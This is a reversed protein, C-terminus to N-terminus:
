SKTSKRRWIGLGALGAGLLLLSAPEPVSTELARINLTGTYSAGAVTVGGDTNGTVIIQLPGTYSAPLIFGTDLGFTPISLTFLNTNLTASSFNIDSGPFAAITVLSADATVTGSVTFNFTDTFNLNDTHVASFTTTGIGSIVQTETVNNARANTAVIAIAAMMIAMILHKMKFRWFIYLQKMGMRSPYKSMPYACGTGIVHIM